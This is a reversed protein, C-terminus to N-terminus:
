GHLEKVRDLWKCAVIALNYETSRDLKRVDEVTISSDSEYSEILVTSFAPQISAMPIEMLDILGVKFQGMRRLAAMTSDFSKTFLPLINESGDEM